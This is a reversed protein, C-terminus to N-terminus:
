KKIKQPPWLGFIVNGKIQSINIVGVEKFRSDLSNNRNDGMVFYEDEGLKIENIAMGPDTLKEYGYIDSTLIEGNIYINADEDIRITEGPLGIIRKIYTSHDGQLPDFVIIDYRDFNKTRKSIKEMVLIDGNELTPYMSQGITVATQAIFTVFLLTVCVTIIIAKIENWIRKIKEM